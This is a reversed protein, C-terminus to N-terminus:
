EIVCLSVTIRGENFPMRRIILEDIQSDDKYVGAHQLGDWIAKQANDLDRRRKDPPYCLVTASLREDKLFLGDYISCKYIVHRRYEVGKQSIFYRSGNRRWYSNISPPWGLEITINKM